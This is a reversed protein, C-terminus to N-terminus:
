VYASLKTTIILTEEFLEGRIIYPLNTTCVNLINM